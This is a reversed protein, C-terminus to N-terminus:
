KNKEFNLNVKWYGNEKIVEIDEEQDNTKTKVTAKDGDIKSDIIEFKGSKEKMSKAVDPQAFLKVFFERGSYNNLEEMKKTEEDSKGSNKSMQLVFTFMGKFMKEMNDASQKSLSDYFDGGNGNIISTYMNKVADHPTNAGKSGKSCAIVLFLLLVTLVIKKM